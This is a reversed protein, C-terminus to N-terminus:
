EEHLCAIEMKIFDLYKHSVPVYLANTHRIVQVANLHGLYVLPFLHGLGAVFKLECLVLIYLEHLEPVCVLANMLDHEFSIKVTHKHHILRLQLVDLAVLAVEVERVVTLAKDAELTFVFLVYCIESEVLYRTSSVFLVLRRCCGIEVGRHDALLAL